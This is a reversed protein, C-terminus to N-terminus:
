ANAPAFAVDTKSTVVVSLTAHALITSSSFFSCVCFSLIEVFNRLATSSFSFVGCPPSPVSQALFL